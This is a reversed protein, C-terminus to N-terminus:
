YPKRQDITTVDGPAKVAIWGVSLGKLNLVTFKHAQGCFPCRELTPHAWVLITATDAEVVECRPMIGDFTKGCKENSCIIPTSAGAEPIKSM